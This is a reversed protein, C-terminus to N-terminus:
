YIANQQQYQVIMQILHIYIFSANYLTFLLYYKKQKIFM